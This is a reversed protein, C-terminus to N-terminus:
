VVVLISSYSTWSILVEFHCASDSMSLCLEDNCFESLFIM